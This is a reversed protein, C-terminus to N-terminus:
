SLSSNNFNILSEELSLLMSCAFLLTELILYAYKLTCPLPVNSTSTFTSLGGLYLYIDKEAQFIPKWASSLSM